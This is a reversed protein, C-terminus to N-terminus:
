QASTSRYHLITLLAADNAPTIYSVVIIVAVSVLMLVVALYYGNLAGISGLLGTPAIVGTQVLTQLTLKLMGLVFGILLGWFAGHSNTRRNFIGLIFVAAIPPALFSQVNQLYDYLGANGEAMTKM